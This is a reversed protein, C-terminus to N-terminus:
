FFCLLLDRYANWELQLQQHSIFVASLKVPNSNEVLQLATPFSTPNNQLKQHAPNLLLLM